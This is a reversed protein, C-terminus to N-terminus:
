LIQRLVTVARVGGSAVGYQVVTSSADSAALETLAPNYKQAMRLVIADPVGDFTTGLPVTGGGSLTTTYGSVTWGGGSKPQGVETLAIAGSQSYCSAYGAVVNSSGGFIVDAMTKGAAPVPSASVASSTGCQQAIQMATSSVSQSTKLLLQATAGDRSGSSAPALITALIGLIAVVIMMEILTFGGQRQQQEM